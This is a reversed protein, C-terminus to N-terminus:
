NQQKGIASFGRRKRISPRPPGGIGAALISHISRTPSIKSGPLAVENFGDLAIVIDFEAGLALLYNLTMLQQPQKYGALGLNIVVIKKGFEAAHKSLLDKLSLYVSHTFSGGFVGIM